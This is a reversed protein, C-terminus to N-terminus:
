DPTLNRNKICSFHVEPKERIYKWYFRYKLIKYISDRKLFSANTQYWTETLFGKFILQTGDLIIESIM